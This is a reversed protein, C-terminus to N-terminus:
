FIQVLDDLPRVLSQHGKVKVLAFDYMRLCTVIFILIIHETFWQSNYAFTFIKADDDGAGLICLVCRQSWYCQVKTVLLCQVKTVLLYQAKTVLLCQVKTVLLTFMISLNIALFKSYLAGAIISDSSLEITLSSKSNTFKQNELLM